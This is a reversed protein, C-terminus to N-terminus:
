PWVEDRFVPAMRVLMRGWTRITEAPMARTLLLDSALIPAAEADLYARSFRRGANWNGVKRADGPLRGFYPLVAQLSMGSDEIFILLQAGSGKLVVSHDDFRSASITDPTDASCLIAALDGATLPLAVVDHEHNSVHPTADEETPRAQDSPAPVVTEQIIPRPARCCGAALILAAMIWLVKLLRQTMGDETNM